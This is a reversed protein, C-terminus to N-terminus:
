DEFLSQLSVKIKLTKNEEKSKRIDHMRRDHIPWWVKSHTSDRIASWFGCSCLGHTSTKNPCEGCRKVAVPAIEQITPQEWNFQDWDEIHKLVYTGIPIERRVLRGRNRTLTDDFKLHHKAKKLTHDLRIFEGMPNMTIYQVKHKKHKQRKDSTRRAFLRYYTDPQSLDVFLSAAKRGQRQLLIQLLASTKGQSAWNHPTNTSAHCAHGRPIPVLLPPLWKSM